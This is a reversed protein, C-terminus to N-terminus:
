AFGCLHFFKKAGKRRRTLIENTWVVSLHGSVFSRHRLDCDDEVIAAPRLRRANIASPGEGRQGVHHEEVRVVQGGHRAGTEVQVQRDVVTVVIGQGGIQVRQDVVRDIGVDAEFPRYAPGALGIAHEGRM